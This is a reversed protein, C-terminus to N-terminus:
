FEFVFAALIKNIDNDIRLEDFIQSLHLVWVHKDDSRTSSWLAKWSDNDFPYRRVPPDGEDSAPDYNEMAEEYAPDYYDVMGNLTNANINILRLQGASPLFSQKGNESKSICYEAATPKKLASLIKATNLNGDFDTEPSDGALPDDTYFPLGPISKRVDIGECWSSYDSSEEYSHDLCFTTNETAVAVGIMYCGVDELQLESESADWYILNRYQAAFEPTDDLTMELDSRYCDIIFPVRRTGGRTSNFISAYGLYHVGVPLHWLEIERSERDAEFVLQFSAAMGTLKSFVSYQFGRYVEFSVEGNEDVELEQRPAAFSPMGSNCFVDVYVKAGSVSTRSTGDYANVKVTVRETELNGLAEIIEGSAEVLALMTGGVMQATVSKAMIADRITSATERHAATNFEQKM